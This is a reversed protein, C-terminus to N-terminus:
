KEKEEKKNDSTYQSRGKRKSELRSHFGQFTIFYLYYWLNESNTYDKVSFPSKYELDSKKIKLSENDKADIKTNSENNIEDDKNEKDWSYTPPYVEDLTLRLTDDLM